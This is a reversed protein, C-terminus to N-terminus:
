YWKNLTNLINLYHLGEKKGKIIAVYFINVNQSFWSSVIIM